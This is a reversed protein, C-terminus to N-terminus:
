NNIDFANKIIEFDVKRDNLNIAIVDFRAKHGLLNKNKMYYLACKYLKQKKRPTISEKAYFTPRRQRTRIEIFVLYEGDKAILDLEGFPCRYNRDLIKYGSSCVKKFALEEGLKGVINKGKSM